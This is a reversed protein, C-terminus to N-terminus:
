AIKYVAFSQNEFVLTFQHLTHDRQLAECFRPPTALGLKNSTVNAALDMAGVLSCETSLSSCLGAEVIMYEAGLRGMIDYVVGPDERAYIQYTQWASKPLWNDEIYPGVTTARGTCLRTAALIQCSGAFVASHPTHSDIWQMLAVTDPMHLQKMLRLQSLLAPAEKLTVALIITGISMLRVMNSVSSKAGIAGSVDRWLKSHCVGAAAISCACPVWLYQFRTTWLSLMGLLLSLLVAYAWAPDPRRALTSSQAKSQPEQHTQLANRIQAMIPKFFVAIAIVYCPLLGSGLTRLVTDKSMPQFASHCLSVVIEFDKFLALGLKSCVYKFMLVSDEYGFFLLKFITNLSISLGITLAWWLVYLYTPMVQGEYHSSHMFTVLAWAITFCIFMSSLPNHYGPYVVSYALIALVKCLLLGCVKGKPLLGLTQVVLLSIGELLFVIQTSQWTVAACVNTVLTLLLSLVKAHTKEIQNSHHYLLTCLIGGTVFPIAFCERLSVATHARTGSERNFMIFLAALCGAIPTGSLIWALCFLTMLQMGQMCFVVNIYFYVPEVFHKLGAVRYLTALFIEPLISFDQFSNINRARLLTSIEKYLSPATVLQKYYSYYLASESRFSLDRELETLHSFWLQNEHLLQLQCTYLYALYLGAILGLFRLANNWWDQETGSSHKSAAAKLSYLQKEKPPPKCRDKVKMM